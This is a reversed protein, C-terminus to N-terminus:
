QLNACESFCAQPDEKEVCEFACATMPSNRMPIIGSYAARFIIMVFFYVIAIQVVCILVGIFTILLKSNRAWETWFWMLLLGIPTYLFLFIITIVDKSRLKKAPLSKKDM